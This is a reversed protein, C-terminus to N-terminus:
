ENKDKKKFSGGDKLHQRVSIFLENLNGIQLLVKAQEEELLWEVATHKKIM